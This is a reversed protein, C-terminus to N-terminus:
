PKADRAVDIEIEDQSTAGETGSRARGSRSRRAAYIGIGIIVVAFPLWDAILDSIGGNGGHASALTPWLAALVGILPGVWIAAKM